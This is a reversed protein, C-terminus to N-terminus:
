EGKVAFMALVADTALLSAEISVPRAFGFERSLLLFDAFGVEGDANFDGDSWGADARGFRSSLTLFDSFDVVRDINADGARTQLVDETLFRHDEMDVRGDANVDFRREESMSRIAAALEDLDDVDTTGDGNVDGTPFAVPRRGPSGGLEDSSRWGERQNWASIRGSQDAVELSYGDGDTTPFWADDYTFRLIAGDFSTDRPAPLHVVLEEGGNSLAGDYYGVIRIEDGYTTAFRNIEPVLVVYEGPELLGQMDTAEIGGSITVGRLDITKGSVNTLELFEDRRDNSLPNYMLETVRLGDRLSIANETMPDTFSRTATIAAGFTVDSTPSIQHVEVAIVNRGEVLLSSPISFPGEITASGIGRNATTLYDVEGDRIGIRMFEHNNIHIVAGDDILSQLQFSTDGAFLLESDIEFETRFYHTVIGSDVTAGPEIPLGVVSSSVFPGNGIQWDGANFDVERWSVGADQGSQDFAWVAGFGLLETTETTWTPNAAGPTALPPEYIRGVEDPMRGQARDVTQQLLLVQDIPRLDTDLLALIEGDASIGFPLENAGNEVNGGPDFVQYGEAAIYSLPAIQHRDARAIPDDTLYLGGLSVPVTDVNHLELFDGSFRVDGIAMWENIRLSDPTGTIAAINAEGFTPESLGWALDHGLRSISKDAIQIGFEVFDVITGDANRLYLGEGDAALQFGLELEASSGSDSALLTMFAGPGIMTGPDFRFKDPVAPDDSLMMGSLDFPTDRNNHLEVLDPTTGLVDISHNLALIESILVPSRGTDVNWIKSRTAEDFSQWVGAVNRGVVDVYYEGDVLNSIEIPMGADIPESWEGQRLRYRYQMLGPGGIYIQANTRGSTEAPEGFIWVAPQVAAGIDRGGFGKGIAPSGASLTFDGNPADAIRPDAVTNSEGFALADQTVISNHVTLIQAQDAADFTVPTNFFISANVAAGKGPSRDELDFFIPSIHVTDVTNYDFELFADDKVQVAHDVNYFFNRFVYYNRGDGASIANADGTSTNYQDRVVDVFTNGEIYADSELDLADDGSGAFYNNKIIPIPGPLAAGDFDVADNHGTTRGFYNGELILEGGSLIGSGKIHESANDSAPPEGPAFMDTFVSDRVVLSSDVTVVRFLDAHDFTTNDITLRSSKLGVLGGETSAHELIAHSIRNDTTSDLFQIGNWAGLVEPARTLRVPAYEEGWVDLAGGDLVLGADVEFFLTTGPLVTMKAGSAVTVEGTVRYAPGCPAFVVNDAITGGPVITPALVGLTQLESCATPNPINTGDYWIDVFGSDIQQGTGDPGDFAEVRVRNIGPFLPIGGTVDGVTAELSLSFRLDEDIATAQHVEVALVNTGDVLLAPDIAFTLQQGELGGGIWSSAVTQFDVRGAPMNSRVVEQNNLYVIAGDDRELRMSLDLVQSRDAVEFAHRFYTTIHKDNPNAGFSVTTALDKEGYGLPGAGANWSADVFSATKWAAAPETGRDFYRWSADPEVLLRSQGQGQTTVSWQRTFPSWDAPQGNVLVSKTQLADSTGFLEAAPLSTRHYGDVIPLDSTIIFEKPLQARVGAIRDIVFQKMDALEQESVYGILQDMLPFLTEPNYVEEILQEFASYYRPVFAEHTLLRSLGATATYAFISRNPQGVRGIGLITDLDHPILRFRTDEVGRYLWYNDGRGVNLGTELNGLLSDLALYRLWHDVDIVRNVENEFEVEPTNNLVDVLEILDNWDDAEENTRKSYTDRYASPDNGEFRLDGTETGAEIVRYLNGARDEPFYRDPFSGTMVELEAYTGFMLPGGPEALDAGNVRVQVPRAEAAPMGALRYIASGIVQAHTFRSNLNLSTQGQFTADHTFNVRYNNPPGIRSSGGRNRVGVQYRVDHSNGDVQIFTASMEANSSAELLPGDGIDRLIARETGTMILYNTTQQDSERDEFYVAQDDVQYLLNASRTPDDSEWTPFVRRNGDSDTAQVYFEVVTGHPLPPILASGLNGVREVPVQQFQNDGDQRWFLTASLTDLREDFVKLSVTVKDTSRPIVPSQSVDVVLPAVNQAFASNATGPSGGNATSATWNHGYENPLRPNMLELSKGGGDHPALWEWGRQGAEVPALFRREAWEGEDAYRVRDVIEGSSDVLTISEGRNALRGEWDGIVTSVNPYAAAFAQTDAAVVVYGLPPISIAPLDFNVGTAIRWGSLHATTDGANHLEIFELGTDDAAPHYMIESIMVDAALLHREDLRELGLGRTGWSGGRLFSM